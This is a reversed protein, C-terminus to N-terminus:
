QTDGVMVMDQFVQMKEFPGLLSSDKDWFGLVLLCPCLYYQLKRSDALYHRILTLERSFNQSWLVRVWELGAPFTGRTRVVYLLSAPPLPAGWQFFASGTSPSSGSFRNELTRCTASKLRELTFRRGHDSVASLRARLVAMFRHAM